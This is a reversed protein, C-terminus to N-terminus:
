WEASGTMLRDRIEATAGDRKGIPHARAPDSEPEVEVPVPRVAPTESAVPANATEHRRINEKILVLAVAGMMVAVFVLVPISLKHGEALKPSAGSQVVSLRIRRSAPVGQAVQERTVFAEFISATGQAFRAAEASTPATAIINVFPLFSSAALDVDETAKVKGRTGLQRRIEAQMVSGNAINAYIPSLSGLSGDPETGAQRYPYASQGILLQAESQWVEASHPTLTPRGGSFGPTGYSLVALVAALVAGAIVLRKARWLVILVLSIDM